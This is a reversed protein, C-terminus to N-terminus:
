QKLQFAKKKLEGDGEFLITKVMKKFKEIDDEARVKM